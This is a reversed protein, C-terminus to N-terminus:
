NIEKEEEELIDSFYNMFLEEVASFPVIPARNGESKEWLFKCSEVLQITDECWKIYQLEQEYGRKLVVSSMLIRAKMVDREKISKLRESMIQKMKVVRQTREKKYANLKFLVEEVSINDMFFTQMLFVDKLKPTETPALLWKILEKKGSETITYIIKDPKGEQPILKSRILNEKELKNLEPYIQSLHSHWFISMLDDFEKKIDYGSAEWESLLGLIGFRLSM